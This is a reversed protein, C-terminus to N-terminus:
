VLVRLIDGVTVIGTFHLGQEHDDRIFLRHIGVAAMKAIAKSLTDSSKINVTPVVDKLINGEDTRRINNVYDETESLLNGFNDIAGQIDKYSIVGDIQGDSDIFGLSSFGEEKMKALSVITPTECTVTQVPAFAAKLQSVPEAAISGLQQLNAALYKVIMTQSVVNVINGNKDAIPIREV